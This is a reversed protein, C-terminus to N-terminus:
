EAAQELDAAPEAKPARKAKGAAKSSSTTGRKKRAVARKSKERQVYVKCRKVAELKKTRKTYLEPSRDLIDNAIRAATVCDNRNYAETIRLQQANVWADPRDRYARYPRDAASQGGEFTPEPATAENALPLPDGGSVANAELKDKYAKKPAPRSKGKRQRREKSKALLDAAVEEKKAELLDARRAVDGRNKNDSAQNDDTSTPAALATTEAAKDAQDATVPPPAPAAPSDAEDAEDSQPPAATSAVEPEAFQDEGDRLYLTGAVGAVLVLTAVAALAPHQLPQFLKGLWALFGGQHTSETKPSASRTAAERILLASLAPPPEETPLGGVLERTREYAALESHCRTCDEVHTSFSQAQQPDLEGYLWDMMLADIDRCQLM